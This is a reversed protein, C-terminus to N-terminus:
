VPESVWTGDKIIYEVENIGCERLFIMCPIKGCGRFQKKIVVCPRASRVFNRSKLVGAVIIRAGWLDKPRLGKQFANQVAAFEAHVGDSGYGYNCSEGIVKGHKVIVAGMKTACKSQRAIELARERLDRSVSM